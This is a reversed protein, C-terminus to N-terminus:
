DMLLPTMSLGNVTRPSIYSPPINDVQHGLYELVEQGATSIDAGSDPLVHLDWTGTSSSIQVIITPAPETATEQVM